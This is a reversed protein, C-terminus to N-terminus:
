LLGKWLLDGCSACFVDSDTEEGCPFAGWEVWGGSPPQTAGNPEQPVFGMTTRLYKEMCGQSCFWYVDELNDREPNDYCDAKYFM